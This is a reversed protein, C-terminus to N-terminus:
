RHRLAGSESDSTPAGAPKTAAEIGTGIERVCPDDSSGIDGLALLAAPPFFVTGILGGLRRVTSLEDPVFTPTVFTGGVKVPVSVNLTTTKPKPTLKIDLTEKALNASGEGFVLVHETNVAMFEPTALGDVITFDGVICEVITWESKEAFLSRAAQSLGGALLDLNRTRIRGEGMVLRGHGNLSAMIAAASGGQGKLAVDLTATGELINTVGFEALLSGLDLAKSGIRLALVPTAVSGDLGIGGAVDSGAVKGSFPTADLKSDELSLAVEVDKFPLTPTLLEGITIDLRVDAANLADLPLPDEPFVRMTVAEANSENGGAPATSRPPMLEGLDIRSSSLRGEIRPRAGSTDISIDGALDTRGVTLKLGRLSVANPGGSLGTDLEFPGARPLTDGALPRLGDLNRGKMTLVLDLHPGAGHLRVSGEIGIHLAFAQLAMRASIAESGSALVELGPVSGQGTIPEGNWHGDLTLALPGAAGESVLALRALTLHQEAGSVGDKYVLVLNQLTVGGLRPVVGGGGEDAAFEWNGAGQENREMLIDAGTLSLQPIALHGSLLPLIEIDLALSEVIALEPRSGWDANGIVLREMRVSTTLGPAFEFTGDIRVERGTTEHAAALAREKITNAPIVFPLAVVVVVLLVFAAAIGIILRKM